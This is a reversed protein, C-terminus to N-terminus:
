NTEVKIKISRPKSEERRPLTITVEGNKFSAEVKSPDVSSPLTFSREFVGYSREVRHYTEGEAADEFKREGRISLRRDEVTVDVDDAKFGPLDATIVIAEEAEKIDVAPRWRNGLSGDDLNRTLNGAVMHDFLRDM